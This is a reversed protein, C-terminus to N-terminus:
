IELINLIEDYSRATFTPPTDLPYDAGHPDFWVCNLGANQAGKVDSTPSDGIVLLKAPDKEKAAALVFDFYRKDPKGVGVTESIFVGDFYKNIDAEAFRSEQVSKIGNTIAFLEFKGQLKELFDRAGPIMQGQMSLKEVYEDALIEPDGKMGTEAFLDRFRGVRIASKEIEKREYAKWLADNVRHYVDFIGDGYPLGLSDFAEALAHKEASKFDLLTDDADLLLATYKM